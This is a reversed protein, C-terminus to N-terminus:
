GRLIWYDEEQFFEANEIFTEPKSVFDVIKEIICLFRQEKKGVSM